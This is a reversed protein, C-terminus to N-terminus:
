AFVKLTSGGAREKTCTAASGFPARTSISTIARLHPQRYPMMYKLFGDLRVELVGDVTKKTDLVKEVAKCYLKRTRRALRKSLYAQSRFFIIFFNVFISSSRRSKYYLVIQRWAILNPFLKTATTFHNVRRITAGNRTPEVGM